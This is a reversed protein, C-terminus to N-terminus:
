KSQVKINISMTKTKATNIKLGMAIGKGELERLKKRWHQFYSILSTQLRLRRVISFPELNNREIRGRNCSENSCGVSHSTASTFSYM